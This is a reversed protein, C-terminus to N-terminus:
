QEYKKALKVIIENLSPDDNSTIIINNWVKDKWNRSYLRWFSESLFSSPTWSVGDFIIELKVWEKLSDNYKHILLNEYFEEWSYKWDSIYRAWPTRTFDKVVNLINTKMKINKNIINGLLIINM